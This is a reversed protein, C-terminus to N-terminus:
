KYTYQVEYESEDTSDSEIEDLITQYSKKGHAFFAERDSRRMLLMPQAKMLNELEQDLDYESDQQNLEIQSTM